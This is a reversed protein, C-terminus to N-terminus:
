REFARLTLIRRWKASACEPLNVNYAALDFSSLRTKKDPSLATFIPPLRREDDGCMVLDPLKGKPSTNRIQWKRQNEDIVEGSPNGSLVSRIVDSLTSLQISVDAFTLTSDIPIDYVERFEVDEILTERISPPAYDLALGAITSTNTSNNVM